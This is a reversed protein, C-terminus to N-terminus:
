KYQAPACMQVHLNICPPLHHGGAVRHAAFGFNWWADLPLKYDAQYRSFNLTLVCQHCTSSQSCQMCCCQFLGGYVCNKVIPVNRSMQDSLIIELKRVTQGIVPICFFFYGRTMFCSLAPAPEEAQGQARWELKSFLAKFYWLCPLPNINTQLLCSFILCIYFSGSLDLRYILALPYIYPLRILSHSGETCPTWLGRMAPPRKYLRNGGEVSVLLPLPHFHSMCVYMCLNHCSKSTNIFIVANSEVRIRTQLQSM